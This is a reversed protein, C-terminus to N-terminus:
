TAKMAKTPLFLKTLSYKVSIGMANSVLGNPNTGAVQKMNSMSQRVQPDSNTHLYIAAALTETKWAHEQCALGRGGETRPLLLRALSAGYQNSENPRMIRRTSEDLERVNSRTWDSNVEQGRSGM